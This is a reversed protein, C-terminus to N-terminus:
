RTKSTEETVHHLYGITEGISCAEIKQFWDFLLCTELEDNTLEEPGLEIDFGLRAFYQTCFGPSLVLFSHGFPCLEQASPCLKFNGLSYFLFLDTTM